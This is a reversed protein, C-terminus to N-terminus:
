NFFLMKMKLAIFSLSKPEISITYKITFSTCELSNRSREVMTALSSRSIPTKTSIFINSHHSIYLISVFEHEM